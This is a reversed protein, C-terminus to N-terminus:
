FVCNYRYYQATQRYYFRKRALNRWDANKNFRNTLKEFCRGEKRQQTYADYFLISLKVIETVKVNNGAVVYSRLLKNQM